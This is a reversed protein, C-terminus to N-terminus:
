KHINVIERSAALKVVYDSLKMLLGHYEYYM